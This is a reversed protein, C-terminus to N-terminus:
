VNSRDEVGHGYGHVLATKYHFGITELERENIGPNSQLIVKKVYSWHQESLLKADNYKDLDLWTKEEM